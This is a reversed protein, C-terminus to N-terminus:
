FPGNQLWGFFNPKDLSVWKALSPRGAKDWAKMEKYDLIRQANVWDDNSWDSEFGVPAEVGGESAATVSAAPNQGPLDSKSLESWGANSSWIVGVIWILAALILGFLNPQCDEGYAACRGLNVSSNAMNYIVVALTTASLQIFLFRVFARVAHTTRNQAQISQELLAEIKSNNDAM